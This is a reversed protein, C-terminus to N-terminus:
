QGIVNDSLLEVDNPWPKRPALGSARRAPMTSLFILCQVLYHTLNETAAATAAATATM